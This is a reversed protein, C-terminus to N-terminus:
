KREEFVVIAILSLSTFLGILQFLGEYGISEILNVIITSLFIGAIGNSTYFM